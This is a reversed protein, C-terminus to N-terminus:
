EEDQRKKRDILCKIGFVLAILLLVAACLPNVCRFTLIGDEIWSGHSLNMISIGLNMVGIGGLMLIMGKPSQNVNVYADNWICLCAYVSISLLVGIMGFTFEDCWRIGTAMSFIGAGMLYVLLVMYAAKYARGQALKQREDYRCKKGGTLKRVVIAILAILLGASVIGFVFGWIYASSHM